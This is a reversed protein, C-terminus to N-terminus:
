ASRDPLRSQGGPTRPWITARNTMERSLAEHMKKDAEGADYQNEGDSEGERRIAAGNARAHDARSEQQLRPDGNQHEIDRGAARDDAAHRVADGIKEAIRLRAGVEDEARQGLRFDAAGAEGDRRQRDDDEEGAQHRDEIIQPDHLEDDAPDAARDFLHRAHRLHFAQASGGIDEHSLAFAREDDAGIQGAEGRRLQERHHGAAHGADRAGNQGGIGGHPDLDVIQERGAEHRRRAAQQHGLDHHGVYRFALRFQRQLIVDVQGFRAAARRHRLRQVRFRRRAFGHRDGGM